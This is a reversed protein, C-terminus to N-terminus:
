RGAITRHHVRPVQDLDGVGLDLRQDAGPERRIGAIVPDVLVVDRALPLREVLVAVRDDGLHLPAAPALELLQGVRRRWV